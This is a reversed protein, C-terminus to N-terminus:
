FIPMGELPHEKAKEQIRMSIMARNLVPAKSPPSFAMEQNRIRFDCPLNIHVDFQRSWNVPNLCEAKSYVFDLPLTQVVQAANPLAVWIDPFTSRM